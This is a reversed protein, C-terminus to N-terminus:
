GPPHASPPPALREGSCFPASRANLPSAFCEFGCGFGARLAAHAGGGLAAQFGSGGLAKYRLLLRVLDRRFLREELLGEEGDAEAACVRRHLDRLKDMHETAVKLPPDGEAQSSWRVHLLGKKGGKKGGPAASITVEDDEDQGGAAALLASEARGAARLAGVIAAARAADAGAARLEDALAADADPAEVSPLLADVVGECGGGCGRAALLSAFHWREFAGVLATHLPLPRSADGFQLRLRRLAEVRRVELLLPPRRGAALHAVAVLVEPSHVLESDWVRRESVHMESTAICEGESPAESPQITDVDRAACERPRKVAGPATALEQVKAHQTLGKALAAV